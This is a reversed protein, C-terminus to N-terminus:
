LRSMPETVDATSDCHLPNRSARLGLSKDRGAEMLGM